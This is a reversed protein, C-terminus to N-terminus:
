CDSLAIPHERAPQSHFNLGGRSDATIMPQYRGLRELDEYLPEGALEIWSHGQLDHDQKAVGIVLTAQIGKKRCWAFLYLCRRLCPRSSFFLYNLCLTCLRWLRGLQGREAPTPSHFAARAPRDVLRQLMAPVPARLVFLSLSDLGLRLLIGPVRWAERLLVLRPEFPPAPEEPM